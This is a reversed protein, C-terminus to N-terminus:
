SKRVNKVHWTAVSNKGDWSIGRDERGVVRYSLRRTLVWRDRISPDFAAENMFIGAGSTQYRYVSEEFFVCWKILFTPKSSEKEKGKFSLKSQTEQKYSCQRDHSGHVYYAGLLLQSSHISLPVLPHIFWHILAKQPMYLIFILNPFSHPLFM